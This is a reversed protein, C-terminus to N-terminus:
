GGSYPVYNFRQVAAKLAPLLDSPYTISVGDPLTTVQEYSGRRAYLLAAQRTVEGAIDEEPEWVLIATGLTHAAATTGNAGRMVYLTKTATDIYTIEMLENDIRLLNGPSFEPTRYYPDPGTISSVVFSTQTSTLAPCTQTSTFFGQATYFERIGWFGTIVISEFYQDPSICCPYWSMLPGGSPAAIRLQRIPTSGDNPYPIVTSGYAVSQGGVTISFCELLSAGLSLTGMFSNVNRRSPTIKRAQYQPEFEFRFSRVRNTVTRIYGMIQQQTGAVANAQTGKIESTVRDYTTYM